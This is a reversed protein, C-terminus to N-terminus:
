SDVIEQEEDSAMGSLYHGVDKIGTHEIELYKVIHDGDKTMLRQNQHKLLRIFHKLSKYYNCCTQFRFKNDGPETVVRKFQKNDVIKYNITAHGYGVRYLLRKM